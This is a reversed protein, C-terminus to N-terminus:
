SMLTWVMRFIRWRRKRPSCVSCLHHSLANIWHMFGSVNVDPVRVAYAMDDVMLEVDVLIFEVILLRVYPM